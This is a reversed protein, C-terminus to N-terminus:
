ALDENEGGTITWHFATAPKVPSAQPMAHAPQFAANAEGQAHDIVIALLCTTGWAGGPVNRLLQRGSLVLRLLVGTGAYQVPPGNRFFRM